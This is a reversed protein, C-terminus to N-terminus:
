VPTAGPWLSAFESLVKDRVTSSKLDIVTAKNGLHNISAGLQYCARGDLIIFRDHFHAVVRAELNGRQQLLKRYAIKFNGKVHETVVQARVGADTAAIHDLVQEDIYPDIVIIESRAQQFIGQLIRFATYVEGKSIFAEIEAYETFTKGEIAAFGRETLKVWDDPAILDTGTPAILRLRVLENWAWILSDREDSTLDVKLWREFNGQGTKGVTNYKHIQRGSRQEQAVFKLLSFKLAEEGFSLMGSSEIVELLAKDLNGMLEMTYKGAPSAPNDALDDLQERSLHLDANRGSPGLLRLCYLGRDADYATDSISIEPSVANIRGAVIDFAPVESPRVVEFAM